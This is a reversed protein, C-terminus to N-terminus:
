ALRVRSVETLQIERQASSQRLVTEAQRGHAIFEALDNGFHPGAVRSWRLSSPPVPAVLSLLARVFREAPASWFLRFVIKMFWPVYNHLPSCTLQFVRANLPVGYHAEAVYAHHVDGSLVCVSAPADAAGAVRGLLEALREFGNHFSAWHELDAARRLWEGFRNLRRGHRDNCLEEDWAELDHLARTLLWPLSTGVLLHDYDGVTQEEIWSFEEDSVMSRAGEALIRGCRSDIMVLRTRGFDRRYSWRTGKAGDAEADAETAFARLLQDTDSSHARVRQYLENDALEAPGLNGLHQYVWYSTLGGIIREQWWDTQQMEVRWAHSTNWDDRVDHDDFIMSSSITSMLWRVDPDTWSELYLWTYEEFDAVQDKAGNTIDRKARIRRQTQPSTEDAYVQDGLMIMAHPWRAEDQDALERAYCALADADFHKDALKVAARGYRCSGFALRVETADEPLTRIRSPPRSSEFPPWAQEGDLHVDYPTAEDPALGQVHVLAFHHGGVTWTHECSGLISVECPEDTEVWVTADTSGVHRLVPGILLRTM